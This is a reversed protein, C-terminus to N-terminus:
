DSLPDEPLGEPISRGNGHGQGQSWGYPQWDSKKADASIEVQGSDAFKNKGKPGLVRWAFLRVTDGGMNFHYIQAKGDVVAPVVEGAEVDVLVMNKMKTNAGEWTLTLDRSSIDSRVEFTWEDSEKRAVPHFDTNYSVIKRGWQPRHFIVSLYTGVWRGLEPLDHEDFELSADNLQGLINYPDELVGDSSELILRVYWEGKELEAASLTATGLVALAFLLAFTSKCHMV